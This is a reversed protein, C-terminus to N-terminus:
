FPLPRGTPTRLDLRTPLTRTIRKTTQQQRM